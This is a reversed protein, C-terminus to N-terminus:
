CNKKNLWTNKIASIVFIVPSIVNRKWMRRPEKALRIVWELGLKRAWAPARQYTGACFDFVAGINGIIAVNLKNRNKFTWVEQKPATMGVWLIDPKAANIQAIFDENESESWAGYPPSICGCVELFPYHLEINKKILKLVNVSSGFFFVRTIKPLNVSNQQKMLASFFDSGTIRPGLNKGFLNGVITVGVGDTVLFDADQLADRFEGNTEATALAHPNACSLVLAQKKDAIEIKKACSGMLVSLPASNIKYGM